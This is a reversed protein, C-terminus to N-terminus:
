NNSFAKKNAAKIVELINELKEINEIALDNFSNIRELEKQICILEEKCYDIVKRTAIVKIPEDLIAKTMYEQRSLGSLKIKEFIREKDKISTRFAITIPAKRNKDYIQKKTKQKQKKTEELELCKEKLLLKQGSKKKRILEDYSPFKPAKM